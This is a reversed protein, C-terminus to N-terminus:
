KEYIIIKLSLSDLAFVIMIGLMMVSYVFSMFIDNHILIVVFLVISLIMMAMTPLIPVKKRVCRM